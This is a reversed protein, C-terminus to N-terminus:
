VQGWSQDCTPRLSGPRHDIFAGIFSQITPWDFNIWVCYSNIYDCYQLCATWPVAKNAVQHSSSCIDNNSWQREGVLAPRTKLSSSPFNKVSIKKMSTRLFNLITIKSKSLRLRKCGRCEIYAARRHLVKKSNQWHVPWIIQVELQFWVKQNHIIDLEEPCRCQRPCTGWGM